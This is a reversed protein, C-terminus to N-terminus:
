PRSKRQVGTLGTTAKVGTVQAGQCMGREPAIICCLRGFLHTHTHTHTQIHTHVCLACVGHGVVSKGVTVQGCVILSHFPWVDL